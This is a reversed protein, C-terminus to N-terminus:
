KRSKTRAKPARAPPKGVGAGALATGVVSPGTPAPTDVDGPSGLDFAQLDNMPLSWVFDRWALSHDERVAALYAIQAASEALELLDAASMDATDKVGSLRDLLIGFRDPSVGMERLAVIDGMTLEATEDLRWTRSGFTIRLM